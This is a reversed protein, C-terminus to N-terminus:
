KGVSGRGTLKFTGTAGNANFAPGFTVDLLTFSVKNADGSVARYTGSKAEWSREVGNTVESYYINALGGGEGGGVSIDTLGSIPTSRNPGEFTLKRTVGGVVQQFFATGSFGSSDNKFFSQGTITASFPSTNAANVGSLQSFTIDSVVNNASSTPVPTASGTPSASASPSATANGTPVPTNNGTAFNGNVTEGNAQITYNGNGGNTPIQGQISFPGIGPFNGQVSFTAPPSFTGSLPFSGGPAAFSFAQAVRAGSNSVALSGSATNGRVILTVLGTKGSGLAVSSNFTQSSLIGGGNGGGCGPLLAGLPLAALLAAGVLLVPKKM